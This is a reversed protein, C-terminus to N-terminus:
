LKGIARIFITGEDPPGGYIGRTRITGGTSTPASALLAIVEGEVDMVSPWVGYVEAMALPFVFSILEDRRSFQVSFWQEVQGDPYKRHGRPSVQGAFLTRMGTVVASLDSKTAGDAIGYGALTTAQAAFWEHLLGYKASRLAGDADVALVELNDVKLMLKASGRGPVPSKAAFLGTDGDEDFAFGVAAGDDGAEAPDGKNARFAAGWVRREADRWAADTIGYGDLTSPKGSTIKSWDLTPVDDGSLQRGNTVRGKVDVTVIPYSGPKVGSNALTLAASADGSGDFAVNWSGDGTLTIQRATRLQAAYAATSTGGALEDLQKKLFATRNALQKGQLNDIGDPGALVPDSTELQYIGAEWVPKEQLNAM